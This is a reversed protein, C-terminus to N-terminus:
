DNHERLLGLTKHNTQFGSFSDSFRPKLGATRSRALKSLCKVFIMLLIWYRELM